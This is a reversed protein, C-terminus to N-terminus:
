DEASDVGLAEALSPFLRLQRKRHPWRIQLYQLNREEIVRASTAEALNGSWRVRGGLGLESLAGNDIRYRTGVLTGTIWTLWGFGAVFAIGILWMPWETTASLIEYTRVIGKIWLGALVLFGAGYLIDTLLPPAYTGDLSRLRPLQGSENENTGSHKKAM